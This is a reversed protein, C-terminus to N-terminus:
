RSPVAYPMLPAAGAAGRTRDDPEERGGPMVPCPRSSGAAEEGEEHRAFGLDRYFDSGATSVWNFSWGM